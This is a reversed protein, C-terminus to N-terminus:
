ACSRILSLDPVHQGATVNEDCDIVTEPVTQLFEGAHTSVMWPNEEQGGDVATLNTSDHFRNPQNMLNTRSFLYSIM